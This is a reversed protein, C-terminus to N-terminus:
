LVQLIPCVIATLHSTIELPNHMIKCFLLLMILLFNIQPLQLFFLPTLNVIRLLIIIPVFVHTDLIAIKSHHIVSYLNECRWRLGIAMMDWALSIVKEALWSSHHVDNSFILSTFPSWPWIFIGNCERRRFYWFFSPLLLFTLKHKKDKNTRFLNRFKKRYNLVTMWSFFNQHNWHQLIM